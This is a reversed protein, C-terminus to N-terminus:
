TRHIYDTIRTQGFDSRSRHPLLPFPIPSTSLTIGNERGRKRKRPLRVVYVRTCLSRCPFSATTLFTLFPPQVFRMKRFWVVAIYVVARAM